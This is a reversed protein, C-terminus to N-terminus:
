SMKMTCESRLHFAGDEALFSTLPTLTPLDYTTVVTIDGDRFNTSNSYTITIVLDGTMYDPKMANIRETVDATNSSASTAIIGVRVGERTINDLM